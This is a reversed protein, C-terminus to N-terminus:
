FPQESFIKEFNTTIWNINIKKLFEVRSYCFFKVPEEPNMEEFEETM